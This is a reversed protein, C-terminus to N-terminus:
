CPGVACVVVVARAAREQPLLRRFVGGAASAVSQRLQHDGHLHGRHLREGDGLRQQRRGARHPQLERDRRQRVPRCDFSTLTPAAGFRVYLDPDGTGTMTVTLQTGPSWRSPAHLQVAPGQGRSGSATATSRRHRDGPPRRRATPTYTVTLSYTAAAYGNVMVYATTATSPVTLTCTETSGSLYPRCNYTSTTPAADFRM